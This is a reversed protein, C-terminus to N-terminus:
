RREGTPAALLGGRGGGGLRQSTGRASPVLPDRWGELRAHLLSYNRTHLDRCDFSRISLSSPYSDPTVSTAPVLLLAGLRLKRPTQGGPWRGAHSSRPERM